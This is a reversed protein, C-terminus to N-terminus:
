VDSNVQAAPRHRRRPKILQFWVYLGVLLAAMGFWQAAYGYHTQVNVAPRSWHRLLGDDPVSVGQQLLSFPLLRVGIERAYADADLNQRIVGADPGGLALLKTPLPAITASIALPSEPTAVTPLRTRDLADRPVWGRQVLVAQGPAVLLPTVVYFGVRGDMQRNDLFVTRAALWTGEARTPRYHQAQAAQVDTPWASQPLASLMAREDMAQQMATKQAARSLQWRGLSATVGVGLLTALLILMGRAGISKTSGVSM